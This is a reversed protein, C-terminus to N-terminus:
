AESELLLRLCNKIKQRAHFLRTKVTGEPVSQVEAVERVSLGEYFVLHLCDRHEDSLKGMCLQVGERRQKEALADFADADDSPLEEDLEDHEPGTSRLATLIKYRAIGLVWTSFKSDGRFRDSHRWVEHMTDVVIEEALAPDKVRNLAFAYIRRSFGTYLKRMAAESGEGVAKLLEFIEQNTPDMLTENYIDCNKSLHNLSNAALWPHAGRLIGAGAAHRARL